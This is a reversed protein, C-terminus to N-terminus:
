RWCTAGALEREEKERRKREEREKEMESLCVECGDGHCMLASERGEGRERDCLRVCARVGWDCLAARAHVPARACLRM